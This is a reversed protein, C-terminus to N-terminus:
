KKEREMEESVLDLFYSGSDIVSLNESEDCSFEKKLKRIIKKKRPESLNKTTKVTKKTMGPESEKATPDKNNIDMVEVSLGPKTQVKRKKVVRKNKSSGRMKKLVDIVSSSM